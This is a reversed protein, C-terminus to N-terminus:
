LPKYSVWVVNHCTWNDRIRVKNPIKVMITLNYRVMDIGHGKIWIQSSHYLAIITWLWM